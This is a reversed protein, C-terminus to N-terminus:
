HPTINYQAKGKLQHERSLAYMTVSIKYTRASLIKIPIVGIKAYFSAFLKKNIEHGPGLTIFSKIDTIYLYEYYALTNTV